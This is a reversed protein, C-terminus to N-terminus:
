YFGASSFTTFISSQNGSYPNGIIRIQLTHTNSGRKPSKYTLEYFSNAYQLISTELKIFQDIIQNEQGPQFSGGTGIKNMVEPQQELGLSVSYILKNHVANMAKALSTSGQTDSGDSIIIMNGQTIGDASYDDAWRSVGKVIAGYFDTTRVGLVYKNNIADMLQTLDSTFDQLLYTSDSFQYIAFEQNTRIGNVIKLATDRILNIENQLSTSNDLMLVTRIKYNVTPLKVTNLQSEFKSIPQYDEFAEFNGANMTSVGSGNLDVVQFTVKVEKPPSTIVKHLIMAYGNASFSPEKLTTFSWVPGTLKSGDNLTAIIKWYYTKNYQLIPTTYFKNTTTTYKILPPNTESLYVEYEKAYDSEWKLTVYLFQDVAGDAPTPTNPASNPQAPPIIPVVSKDFTCGTWYFNIGLLFLVALLILFLKPFRNRMLM